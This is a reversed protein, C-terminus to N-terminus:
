NGPTFRFIRYFPERPAHLGMKIMVDSEKVQRFGPVKGSYRLRWYITKEAEPTFVLGTPGKTALLVKKGLVAPATVMFMRNFDIVVYAVRRRKLIRRAAEEEKGPRATYVKLGDLIGMINRHYGSSVVPVRGYYMLKAGLDWSALVSGDKGEEDLARIDRCLESILNETQAVNPREHPPTPLSTLAAAGALLFGAARLARIHSSRRFLLAPADWAALGLILPFVMSFLHALKVEWSALALTFIGWACLFVAGNRSLRPSRWSAWLFLPFLPLLFSFRSLAPLFSFSAGDTFLTRYESVEEQLWPNVLAFRLAEDELAKGFFVFLVLGGALLATGASSFPRWRRPFGAKQLLAFLLLTGAQLVQLLSAQDWLFASLDHPHEALHGALLALFLGGAWPPLLSPGNASARSRNWELLFSLLAALYLILMSETSVWVACGMLVGSLLAWGRPIKEELALLGLLMSGLLLLHQLNQHDGNGFWSVNVCSYAFAYFLGALLAPGEGWLRRTGWLLFLLSLVSLLPGAAAAGAEWKKAQPLFLSAPGDLVRIVWDMPLTWHLVSGEPYGDWRNVVPYTRARDLLELRSLRRVTDNDWFWLRDPGAVAPVEQLRVFLSGLVLLLAAGWFLFSNRGQAPTPAPGSVEKEKM